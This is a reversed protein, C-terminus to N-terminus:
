IVSNAQFYTDKPRYLLRKMTEHKWVEMNSM